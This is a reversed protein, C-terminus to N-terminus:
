RAGFGKSRAWRGPGYGKSRAWADFDKDYATSSPSLYNTMKTYLEHGKAPLKGNVEYYEKIARMSSLRM